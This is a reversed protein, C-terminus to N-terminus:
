QVEKFEIIINGLSQIIEERGTKIQPFLPNSGFAVVSGYVSHTDNFKRYTLLFMFKKIKTQTDVICERTTEFKWEYLDRFIIWLEKQCEDLCEYLKMEPSKINQRQLSYNMYIPDVNFEKLDWELDLKQYISSLRNYTIDIQLTRSKESEEIQNKISKNKDLINYITLILHKSLLDKLSDFTDYEFILGGDKKCQERFKILEDYQQTDFKNRSIDMNSFYLLVPKKSKLFYKIEHVTGSIENDTPTGLRTSFFAIAIDCGEVIQKQLLPQPSGGMEARADTEWLVPQLSIEQQKSHTINWDIIINRAIEREKTVDSPSAIFIDYTTTSRPM